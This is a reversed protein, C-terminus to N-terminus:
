NSNRLNYLEELTLLLLKVNNDWTCNWPRATANPNSLNYSQIQNYVANDFEEVKDFADTFAKSTPTAVNPYDPIEETDSYMCESPIYELLNAFVQASESARDTKSFTCWNTHLKRLNTLKEAKHKANYRNVAAQFAIVEQFYNSSAIIESWQKVFTQVPIWGNKLLLKECKANVVWINQKTARPLSSNDFNNRISSFGIKGLVINAFRYRGLSFNLKRFEELQVSSFFSSPHVSYDTSKGCVKFDNRHTTIYMGGAEVPFPIDAVQSKIVYTDNEVNVDKIGTNSWGAFHGADRMPKAYAGAAPARKKKPGAARAIKYTSATIVTPNVAAYKQLKEVLPNDSVDKKVVILFNYNNNNLIHRCKVKWASTSDLLVIAYGKGSDFSDYILKTVDDKSTNQYAAPNIFLIYSGKDIAHVKDPNDYIPNGDFTFDKTQANLRVLCSEANVRATYQGEWLQLPPIWPNSYEAMSKPSSYQFQHPYRSTFATQLFASWYTKCNAVKSMYTQSISQSVSVLYKAIAKVTRKNLQLGERSPLIDVEGIDAHVTLYKLWSPLLYNYEESKKKISYPSSASNVDRYSSYGYNRRRDCIAMLDPHIPYKDLEQQLLKINVPYSISGMVINVSDSRYADALYWGDGKLFPKKDNRWLDIPSGDVAIVNPRPTFHRYITTAKERFAYIDKTSVEIQIEIGSAEDTEVQSLRSYSYSGNSKKYALYTTAMGNYHSVIKFSDSYAFGSKSGFGLQGIAENSNRKTSRAYVTYVNKIDDESLGTGFDRIIFTPNSNSPLTIQIPTDGLGNERNADLANTGYERLVAAIKDSYISNSLIELLFKQDEPNNSFQFSDAEVNASSTVSSAQTYVKM